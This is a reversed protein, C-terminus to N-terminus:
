LPPVPRLRRILIHIQQQPAQDAFGGRGMGPNKVVVSIHDRAQKGYRNWVLFRATIEDHEGVAPLDSPGIPCINDVLNQEVILYGLAEELSQYLGFGYSRYSPMQDRPITIKEPSIPRDVGVLRAERLYKPRCGEIVEAIWVPVVSPPFRNSSSVRTAVAPRNIWSRNDPM